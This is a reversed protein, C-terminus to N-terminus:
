LLDVVEPTSGAPARGSCGASFAAAASDAAMCLMLADMVAELAEGSSRPQAMLGVPGGGRGRALSIAQLASALPASDSSSRGQRVAMGPPPARRVLAEEAAALPALVLRSRWSFSGAASALTGLAAEVEALEARGGEREGGQKGVGRELGPRQSGAVRDAHAAVADCLLEALQLAPAVAAMPVRSPHIPEERRRSPAEASLGAARRRGLGELGGGRGPRGDLLTCLQMLLETAAGRRLLQGGVEERRAAGAPPGGGPVAAAGSGVGRGGGLCAIGLNLVLQLEAGFRRGAAVVQPSEASRPASPVTGVAHQLGPLVLQQLAQSPTLLPKM